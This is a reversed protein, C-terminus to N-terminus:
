MRRQLLLCPRLNFDRKEGALKVSKFWNIRFFSTLSFIFFLNRKRISSKEFRENHNKKMKM